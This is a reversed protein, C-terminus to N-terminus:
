FLLAKEVRDGHIRYVHNDILRAAGLPVACAVLVLGDELHETARLTEPDLVSFYEPELGDFAALGANELAA